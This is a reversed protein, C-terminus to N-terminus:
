GPPLTHLVAHSHTANATAPQATGCMTSGAVSTSAAGATTRALDAMFDHLVSETSGQVATRFNSLQMPSGMLCTSPGWHVRAAIGVPVSYADHRTGEM